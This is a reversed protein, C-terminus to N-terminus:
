KTCFYIPDTGTLGMRLAEDDSVLDRVGTTEVTFGADRLRELYDPGYRRVHDKQGFVKLREEPDVISPDEHSVESTIPVLLIAWGDDKLVRRFESMAQRDELVHELVHSCLIVDFSRDPYQIDTIDMTVMASPDSLDATLYGEGLEESLRPEFCSEPAVHLVKKARGDFLNSKELLFLWLFRHRELSGCHPCQSDDRPIPGFRCFVRSSECCVPCWRAKGCHFTKRVVHKLRRFPGKMRDPLAAVIGSM